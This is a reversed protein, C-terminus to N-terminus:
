SKLFRQRKRRENQWSNKMARILLEKDKTKLQGELSKLIKYSHRSLGRQKELLSYVGDILLLIPLFPLTIPLSLIAAGVKELGKDYKDFLFDSNSAGFEITEKEINIAVRCPIWQKYYYNWFKLSIIRLPSPSHTPLHEEPTYNIKKLIEIEKQRREEEKYDVRLKLSRPPNAWSIMGEIIFGFFSKM